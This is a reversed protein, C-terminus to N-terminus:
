WPLALGAIGEQIFALISKGVDNSVVTGEVRKYDDNEDHSLRPSPPETRPTSPTSSPKAMCLEFQCERLSILTDELTGRRIFNNSTIKRLIEMFKSYYRIRCGTLGMFIKGASCLESSVYYRGLQFAAVDMHWQSTTTMLNPDEIYGREEDAPIPAALGYDILTLHFTMNGDVFKESIIFNEPKVDRHLFGLSHFEVLAELLQIMLDIAITEPLLGHKEHFAIGDLGEVYNMQLCPLNKHRKYNSEVKKSKEANIGFSSSYVRTVTSKPIYTSEYCTLLHNFKRDSLRMRNNIAQSILFEKREDGPEHYFKFATCGNVFVDGFGGTEIYRISERFNVSSTMLIIYTIFYFIHYPLSIHSSHPINSIKRNYSSFFLPHLYSLSAASVLPTEEMADDYPIDSRHKRTYCCM